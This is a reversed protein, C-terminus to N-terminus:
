DDIVGFPSLYFEWKITRCVCRQIEEKEAAELGKIKEESVNQCWQAKTESSRMSQREEHVRVSMEPKMKVERLDNVCTMQPYRIRIFLQSSIRKLLFM